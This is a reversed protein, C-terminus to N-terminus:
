LKRVTDIFELHAETRFYQLATVASFGSQLYSDYNKLIKHGLESSVLIKKNDIPNIIYKYESM